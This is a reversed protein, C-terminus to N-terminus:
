VAHGGEDNAWEGTCSEDYIDCEDIEWTPLEDESTGDVSLETVTWEGGKILRNSNTRTKNCATALLGVALLLTLTKISTKM